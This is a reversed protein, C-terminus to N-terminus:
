FSFALLGIKIYADVQLATEQASALTRLPTRKTPFATVIFSYNRGTVFDKDKHYLLYM